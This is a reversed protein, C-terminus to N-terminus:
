RGFRRVRVAIAFRYRRFTRRGKGLRFSRRLNVRMMMVMMVVMMRRNRFWVFKGIPVRLVGYFCSGSDGKCEFSADFGILPEEGGEESGEDRESKCRQVGM